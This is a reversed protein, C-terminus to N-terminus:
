LDAYTVQHFCIITSYSADLGSDHLRATSLILTYCHGLIMLGLRLIDDLFCSWLLIDADDARDRIFRRFFRRWLFRCHLAALEYILRWITVIIPATTTYSPFHHQITHASDICRSQSIFNSASFACIIAHSLPQITISRSDLCRSQRSYFLLHRADDIHLRRCASINKRSFIILHFHRIM